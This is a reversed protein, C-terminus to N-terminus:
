ITPVPVPSGTPTIPSNPVPAGGTTDTGADGFDWGQQSLFLDCFTASCDYDYNDESVSDIVTCLKMDTGVGDVCNSLEMKTFEICLEEGKRSTPAVATLLYDSTFATSDGEDLEWVYDEGTVDNTYLSGHDGYDKVLKFDLESCGPSPANEGAYVYVEILYLYQVITPDIPDPMLYEEALIYAMPAGLESGGAVNTGAVNQAETMCVANGVAEQVGGQILDRVVENDGLLFNIDNEDYFMGFGPYGETTEAFDDLIVGLRYVGYSQGFNIGGTGFIEEEEDDTLPRAKGRILDDLDENGQIVYLTGDGGAKNVMEIIM